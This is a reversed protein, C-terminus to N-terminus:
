DWESLEVDKGSKESEILALVVRVARKAAEATIVSPKRNELM